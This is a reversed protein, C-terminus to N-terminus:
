PPPRAVFSGRGGQQRLQKVFGLTGGIRKDASNGLVELLKTTRFSQHVCVGRRARLDRCIGFKSQRPRSCSPPNM